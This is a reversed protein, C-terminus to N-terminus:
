PNGTRADDLIMDAGKEAIMITPANTNGSVLAPMISADVIRLGHLGHVRLRADVVATPDSGMRCTSTPHYVTSGRRRGYDLLDEDSACAPGPEHEAEIFPALPPAAMIRRLERIGAITTDRDKQASLYNPAIAPATLPDASKIRVSGRSEPRLVIVPCTVGSFAHLPGGIADASFLMIHTQVDPTEVADNTRLFGGVYGAGMALLGRRTLAYRLGAALGRLRNTFFDNASVPQSARFVLRAHYHDQLDAGVGPMDAIVDIGHERLLAAPGLGSLQMLQPSNFAGGALIVEGARATQKADGQLYEVGTARKGEFLVRTALAGAAVKLSARKRAPKLYGVATSCRRGHRTTFQYYGFGEQTAGNFDPNRPYGCQEAAAIFADCIPLNGLDSVCLPGGEGHWADAGRSQDEAKRFYPLVDAHSWGVNGLQRWRDYDQAQGRVYMLGNISSSGGLVKGRPAIIRRGHCEPEPETEYLWNVDPNTFHRGYGLPIHLWIDRDEGGAELLLVKHRGDATLRNALVCGASGAGVIIFDYDSM